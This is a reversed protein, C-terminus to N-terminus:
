HFIDKNVSFFIFLDTLFHLILPAWLSVRIITWYGLAFGWLDTLIFGTAGQPIGDKLHIFGFLLAQLTLAFPPSGLRTFGSLFFGRFWFEEATANLLSSLIGFVIAWGATSGLASWEEKGTAFYAFWLLLAFVTISFLGIIVLLDRFHMEFRIFYKVKWEDGYGIRMALIALLISVVYYLIESIFRTAPIGNFLWKTLSLHSTWQWISPFLAFLLFAGLIILFCERAYNKKDELKLWAFFCVLWGVLAVLIAVPLNIPKYTLESKSAFWLLLVLAFVLLLTLQWRKKIIARSNM